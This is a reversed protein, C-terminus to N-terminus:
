RSEGDDAEKLTNITNRLNSVFDLAENETMERWDKKGNSSHMACREIKEQATRKAKFDGGLIDVLEAMLDLIVPEAKEQWSSSTSQIEELGGYKGDQRGMYIDAGYGLWSLAKTVADTLSKKPAEDDYVVYKDGQYRMKTTGIAPVPIKADPYRLEIRIWHLLYDGMDYVGMEVVEPGWLEGMPGWEETASRIVWMPDVSTMKRKQIVFDKLADRHPTRHRNWLSLNDTM